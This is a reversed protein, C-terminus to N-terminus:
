PLVTLNKVFRSRCDSDAASPPASRCPIKKGTYRNFLGIHLTYDGAPLDPVRHVWCLPAGDLSAQALNFDLTSRLDGQADEIHLFVATQFFTKHPINPHLHLRVAYAISDGRRWTDPILIEDLTAIRRYDLNLPTAPPLPPSPLPSPPEAPPENAALPVPRLNWSLLTAEPHDAHLTLAADYPAFSKTFTWELPHTGAPLTQTSTLHSAADLTLTLASPVPSQVLGQFRYTGAALPQAAGPLPPSPPANPPPAVPITYPDGHGLYRLHGLQRQIRAVDGASLDAPSPIVVTTEVTANTPGHRQFLALEDPSTMLSAWVPGLQARLRLPYAWVPRRNPNEPDAPFSFAPRPCPFELLTQSQPPLLRLTESLGDLRLTCRAPLCGTRLGIFLREPPADMFVLMREVWVGGPSRTNLMLPQGADDRPQFLLGPGSAPVAFMRNNRPFVPGNMFIWADDKAASFPVSPVPLQQEGLQWAHHPRVLTSPANRFVPLQAPELYFTKIVGPTKLKRSSYRGDDFVQQSFKQATKQIDPRQWFFAERRSLGFAEILACLCFIGMLVRLGREKRSRQAVPGTPWAIAFALAFAPILFTFHFPQVEPKLATALFLAMWPFSAIALAIRRKRLNLAAAAPDNPTASAPHHAFAFGTCRVGAFLGCAVLGWGLCRAIFPVNHSLGYGMRTLFPQKLFEPDVGYNQIFVFNDTMDKWAHSSDVLLAPNALLLAGFFGAVVAVTAVGLRQWGRRGDHLGLLLPLGALWLGLAGQFKCAFAAGCAAGIAFFWRRHGTAALAAAAYLAMAVFLDVGIDGTVSHTVTAGLPALGYLAAAALAMWRGVGWRRAAAFILGLTVMGYLARLLRGAYFLQTHDLPATPTRHAALHATLPARVAEVGRLLVADLQNLGYPYGDYFRNGLRPPLSGHLYHQLARVQKPSDPHFLINEDLGHFLGNVRFFLSTLVVLWAAIKFSPFARFLKVDWTHRRNM